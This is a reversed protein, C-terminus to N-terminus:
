RRRRRREGKQVSAERIDGTKMWQVNRPLNVMFVKEGKEARRRLWFSCFGEVDGGEEEGSSCDKLLQYCEGENNVEANRESVSFFLCLCINGNSLLPSFHYKYYIVCPQVAWTFTNTRKIVHRFM